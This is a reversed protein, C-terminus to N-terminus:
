NVDLKAAPQPRLARAREWHKTWKPNGRYGAFLPDQNLMRWLLDKSVFNKSAMIEQFLEDSESAVQSQESQNFQDHDALLQHMLLRYFKNKGFMDPNLNYLEHSLSKAKEINGLRYQNFIYGLQITTRRDGAISNFSTSDTVEKLMQYGMERVGAEEKLREDLDSLLDAKNLLLLGKKEQFLLNDPYDELVQECIELGRDYNALGDDASCKGLKVDQRLTLGRNSIIGAL